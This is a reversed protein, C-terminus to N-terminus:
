TRLCEHWWRTRVRVSTSVATIVTRDALMVHYRNRAHHEHAMRSIISSSSTTTSVIIICIATVIAISRRISVFCCGFVLGAICVVTSVSICDAVVDAWRGLMRYRHSM